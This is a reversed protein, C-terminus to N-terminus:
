FWALRAVRSRRWRIMMVPLLLCLIGVLGLKVPDNLVSALMSNVTTTPSSTGTFAGYTILIMLGTMLMLTFSYKGLSGHVRPFETAQRPLEASFVDGQGEGPQMGAEPDLQDSLQTHRDLSELIDDVTSGESEVPSHSSRGDFGFRLATKPLRSRVRM